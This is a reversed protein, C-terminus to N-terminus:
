QVRFDRDLTADLEEMASALDQRLAAMEPDSFDVPEAMIKECRIAIPKKSNTRGARNLLADIESVRRQVEQIAGLAVAETIEGAALRKLQRCEFIRCREPRAAYISCRSGRYAPCPQLICDHGRKRKLKLGLATLASPVDSAQLRVTHFM